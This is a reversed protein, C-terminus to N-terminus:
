IQIVERAGTQMNQARARKKNRHLRKFYLYCAAKLPFNVSKQESLIQM